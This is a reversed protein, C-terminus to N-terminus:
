RTDYKGSRGVYTCVKMHFVLKETSQDDDGDDGGYRCSEKGRYLNTETSHPPMALDSLERDVPAQGEYVTSHLSLFLDM